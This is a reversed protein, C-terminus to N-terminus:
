GGAREGSRSLCKLVHLLECFRAGRARAGAAGIALDVRVLMAEGALM